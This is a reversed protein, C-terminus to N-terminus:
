GNNARGIRKQAEAEIEKELMERLEVSLFDHFSLEGLGDIYIEAKADPYNHTGTNDNTWAIFCNKIIM